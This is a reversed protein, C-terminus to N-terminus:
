IPDTSYRALLHDGAAWIEGDALASIASLTTGHLSDLATSQRTATRGNWHIVIPGVRTNGDDSWRAGVIWVSTNSVAALAAVGAGRTRYEFAHADTGSWHILRYGFDVAPDVVRELTWTDGASIADVDTTTIGEPNATDPARLRTWGAGDSRLFASGYMSSDVGGGTGAAWVDSSARQDIADISTGCNWDWDYPPIDGTGVLTPCPQVLPSVDVQQWDVGNWHLLFPREVTGVGTPNDVELRVFESGAVWVDSSSSASVDDLYTGSPLLPTTITRWLRGDWHVIV